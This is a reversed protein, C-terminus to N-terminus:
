RDRGPEWYSLPAVRHVQITYVGDLPNNQLVLIYFALASTVTEETPTCSAIPLLPVCLLYLRLHSSPTYPNINIFYCPGISVSVFKLQHLNPVM